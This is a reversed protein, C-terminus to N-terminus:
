TLSINNQQLIVPQADFLPKLSGSINCLGTKMQGNNATTSGNGGGIKWLNSGTYIGTKLAAVGWMMGVRSLNYQGGFTETRLEIDSLEAHISIPHYVVVRSKLSSYGFQPITMIEDNKLVIEFCDFFYVSGGSGTISGDFACDVLYNAGTLTLTGRVSFRSLNLNSIDSLQLTLSQNGQLVVASWGSLAVTTQQGTVGSISVRAPFPVEGDADNELAFSGVGFHLHVARAAYYEGNVSWGWRQLDPAATIAIGLDDFIYPSIGNATIGVEPAAPFIHDDRMRRTNIYVEGLVSVMVRFQEGGPSPFETISLDPNVRAMAGAPYLGNDPSFYIGDQAVVFLNVAFNANQIGEDLTETSQIGTEDFSYLKIRGLLPKFSVAVGTRTGSAFSGLVTVTEPFTVTNVVSWDALSHIRAETSDPHVYQGETLYVYDDGIRGGSAGTVTLPQFNVGDYWFWEDQARRCLIGDDLKIIIETHEQLQEWQRADASKYLGSPFCAYYWDNWKIINQGYIQALQSDLRYAAGELLAAQLAAHGTRYPKAANGIAGTADDGDADVFATDAVPVSGSDPRDRLDDLQSQVDAVAASVTAKRTEGDQVVVILEDGALAEAEPLESIKIDDGDTESLRTATTKRTEGDQVLPILEAGSLAGADPLESIKIDSM